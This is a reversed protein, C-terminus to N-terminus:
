PIAILSAKGDSQWIHTPDYIDLRGTVGDGEVNGMDFTDRSVAYGKAAFWNEVVGAADESMGYWKPAGSTQGLENNDFHTTCLVYNGWTANTCKDAARAYLRIHLVKTRAVLRFGVWYWTNEKRGSDGRWEWVGASDSLRAYMSSGTSPLWSKVISRVKSVTANGTFVITVPWDNHGYQAPDPYTSSSGRDYDYNFFSDENVPVAKLSGQTATFGAGLATAPAAATCVALVALVVLTLLVAYRRPHAHRGRVAHRRTM